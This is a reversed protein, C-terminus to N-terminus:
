NETPLFTLQVVFMKLAIYLETILNADDKESIHKDHRFMM